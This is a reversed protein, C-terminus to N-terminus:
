AHLGAQRNHAGNEMAEIVAFAGAALHFVTDFGTMGAPLVGGVTPTFLGLLGIGVYLIGVIMLATNAMNDNKAILGAFLLYAAVVIRLIDMAIDTNTILFLHGSVFLGIIGLLGIVAGYIRALQINM